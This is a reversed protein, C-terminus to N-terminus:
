KLKRIVGNENVSMKTGNESTLFLMFQFPTAGLEFNLTGASGSNMTKPISIGSLEKAYKGNEAQYRKQKYYVLWLYKQIESLTSNQFDVKEGDVQNKSFQVVGLREPYHMNIIGQPSWVWNDEPLIRGTSPDTKRHYVGDKIETQWQVRSFNLRWIQKDAPTQSATGLQFASFPIAMEV